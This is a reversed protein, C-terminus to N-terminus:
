VTSCPRAKMAKPTTAAVIIAMLSRSGVSNTPKTIRNAQKSTNKKPTSLTSPRATSAASTHHATRTPLRRADIAMSQYKKRAWRASGRVSIPEHPPTSRSPTTAPTMPAATTASHNKAMSAIWPSGSRM